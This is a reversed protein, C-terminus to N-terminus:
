SESNEDPEPVKVSSEDGSCVNENLFSQNCLTYSSGLTTWFLRTSIATVKGGWGQRQIGRFRGGSRQQSHKLAPKAALQGPPRVDRFTRRQCCHQCLPGAGM